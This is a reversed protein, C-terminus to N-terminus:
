ATRYVFPLFSHHDLILAFARGNRVAQITRDLEKVIKKPTTTPDRGALFLRITKSLDSYSVKFLKAKEKRKVHRLRRTADIMVSRNLLSVRCVMERKRKNHTTQITM